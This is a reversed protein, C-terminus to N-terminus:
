FDTPKVPEAREAQVVRFILMEGFYFDSERFIM